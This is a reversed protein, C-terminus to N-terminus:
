IYHTHFHVHFRFPDNLFKSYKNGLPDKTSFKFKCNIIHSKKKFQM